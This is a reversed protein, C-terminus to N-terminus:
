ESGCLWRWVRTRMLSRVGRRRWDGGCVWRRFHGVFVGRGGVGWGGVCVGAGVRGVLLLLLFIVAGWGWGVLVVAAVRGILDSIRTLVAPKWLLLLLKSGPISSTTISVSPSVCRLLSPHVVLLPRRLPIIRIPPPSIAPRPSSLPYTRSHHRTQSTTTTQIKQNLPTPPTLPHPPVSTHLIAYQIRKM